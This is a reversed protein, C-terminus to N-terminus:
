TRSSTSGVFHPIKKGNYVFGSGISDGAKPDHGYQIVPYIPTVM